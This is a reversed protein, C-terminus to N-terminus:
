SWPASGKKLLRWNRLWELIKWCKVRRLNIYEEISTELTRKKSNTELDKIKDKLYERKKNRFHSSAERRINNLNDGNIQSPDQFWQLKAQKRQDVLKSCGEDCRPKHKKFANGLSERASFNINERVTEWARNIDVYNDLNELASFRNSSKVRYQKKGEVENLKKLNFREM